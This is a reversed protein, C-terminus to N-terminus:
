GNALIEWCVVGFSWVDSKESFVRKELVEPSCWRIPIMDVAVDV